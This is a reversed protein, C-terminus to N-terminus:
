ELIKEHFENLLEQTDQVSLHNNLAFILVADRRRRVYLPSLQGCALAHQTDEISLGAALCLLIVKDRGPKRIGSMIQYVYTREIGSRAILEPLSYRQGEPLSLFFERFTESATNSEDLNEMYESLGSATSIKGLTESLEHTSKRNVERRRKREKERHGRDESVFRIM